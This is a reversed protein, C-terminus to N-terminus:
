DTRKDDTPEARRRRRLPSRRPIRRQYLRAHSHLREAVTKAATEDAPIAVRAFGEGRVGFVSGPTIRLGTRRLLRRCFGESGAMGPVSVWLFPVTPAARPMWGAGTLAEVLVQRSLALREMRQPMLAGANNLVAIAVRVTRALPRLRSAQTLFSIATLAERNGVVVALPLDEIGFSAGIPFIEVGVGRAGSVELFGHPRVPGHFAHTFAADFVMFVGQRRGFSVAQTLVNLDAVATTPNHPYSLVMMRTRGVLGAELGAFSPLFDNREWLHYPIVGGGCLAVAGRYFPLGPDPLLVMNGSDVFALALLSLGTVSNPVVAVEHKPDLRVGFRHNYWVCVAASLEGLLEDGVPCWDHSDEPVRFPLHGTAGPVTARSLDIVEVGRRTMRAAIHELDLATAVPMRQLRDARDIFIKRTVPM